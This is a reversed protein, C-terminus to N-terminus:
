ALFSTAAREADRGNLEAFGATPRREMCDLERGLLLYDTSVHFYLAIEVLLELSPKGQGREMNGLHEISINLEDAAKEQTMGKAKRYRNTEYLSM